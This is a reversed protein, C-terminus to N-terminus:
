KETIGSIMGQGAPRSCILDAYKVLTATYVPKGPIQKLVNGDEGALWQWDCLQHMTFDDTNLLYMTGKPCFRDAVVPIGNYSIAKFGGELNMVDVNCKSTAFLNQLARRVGWSCVIFDTKGGSREEIADLATQIKLETIEGANTLTYPHLWENTDKYIGYINDVMDSFIAKLGTIENYYAGQSFIGDGVEVFKTADSIGEFCIYGNGKDVRSIRLGNCGSAITGDAKRVDVCMGVLYKEVDEVAVKQGEVHFIGGIKGTGDGFLMRGLNFNSAKILGEMEANLLNVFAGSDNATARIAKDSIEITGYLNKLTSVFQQYKNGGAKPLDGDEEGVGVGGNIGYIVPKRIEKGYVDRTTQKVRSLFPHSSLNLQETIVDLYVQKLAKEANTLNVAM